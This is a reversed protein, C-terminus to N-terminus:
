VNVPLFFVSCVCWVVFPFWHHVQYYCWSSIDADSEGAVMYACYWRSKQKRNIIYIYVTKTKSINEPKLKTEPKM